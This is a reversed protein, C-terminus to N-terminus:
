DQGKPEEAIEDLLEQVRRAADQGTDYTFRLEPLRRLRLRPGLARRFRPAARRLSQLARQRQREDDDGVLLRVSIYATALDPPMEVGTVVVGTLGPDHMQRTLAETLYARVIEAV